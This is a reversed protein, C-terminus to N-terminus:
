ITLSQFPRPPTFLRTIAGQPSTGAQAAAPTQNGAGNRLGSESRAIGTKRGSRDPVGSKSATPPQSNTRPAPYQEVARM